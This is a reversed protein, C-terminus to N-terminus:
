KRVPTCLAICATARHLKSWFLLSIDQLFQRYVHLYTFFFFFFLFFFFFFFVHLFTIKIYNQTKDINNISKNNILAFVRGFAVQLARSPFAAADRARMPCCSCCLRARSHLILSVLDQKCHSYSHSTFCHASSSTSLSSASIFTYSSCSPPQFLLLLLLAPRQNM